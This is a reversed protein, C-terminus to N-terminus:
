VAIGEVLVLLAYSLLTVILGIIAYLLMKKARTRSEPVGRSTIFYIGSIIFILLALGGVIALLEKAVDHLIVSVSKTFKKLYMSGGTVSITPPGSVTILPSMCTNTHGTTSEVTMTYTTDSTPYALVNGGIAPAVLGVGNDITASAANTGTWTLTTAMGKIISTPVATLTCAPLIGPTVDVITQCFGEGLANTVKIKYTTTAAPTVNVNGGALPTVAGAFGSQWTGGTVDYTSWAIQTEQPPVMGAILKPPTATVTCSPLKGTMVTCTNTKDNVATVTMTYTLPPTVFTDIAVAPSTMSAVNWSDGATNAITLPKTPEWDTTTWELDVDQGMAIVCPNTAPGFTSENCKLSCAPLLEVTTSCTGTGGPGTVTMTYVYTMYNGVAPAKATPNVTKSSTGLTLNTWSNVPTGDDSLDADFAYNTTYNLSVPDGSIVEAPAPTITCSPPPITVTCDASSADPTVAANAVANTTAGGGTITVTPNSTYGSGGSTIVISTVVGGGIAATATAGTGGGGSITVTPVGTYGVGGSILTISTVTGEISGSECGVSHAGAPLIGLDYKLATYSLGCGAGGPGTKTVKPTADSVLRVQSNNCYNFALDVYRYGIADNPTVINYNKVPSPAMANWGFTSGSWNASGTWAAFTENASMFGAGLLIAALLIKYIQKKM